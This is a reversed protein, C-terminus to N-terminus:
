PRDGDGEGHKKQDPNFTRVFSKKEVPHILALHIEGQTGFRRLAWAYLELQKWHGEEGRARGSKYDVVWVRGSNDRGWLDIRGQLVGVELKIRFGWEAQGNLIIEKFSSEQLDWAYELFERLEFHVKTAWQLDPKVKLTQFARHLAIGYTAGEQRAMLIKTTLRDEGSKSMQSVTQKEAVTESPKQWVPRVHVHSKTSEQDFKFEFPPRLIAVGYKKSKAFRNAATLRGRDAWSHKELLDDSWTLAL